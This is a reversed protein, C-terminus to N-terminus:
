PISVVVAVRGHRTLRAIPFGVYRQFLERVAGTSGLFRYRGQIRGSELM